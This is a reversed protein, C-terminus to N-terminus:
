GFFLCRVKEITDDYGGLSEYLKISINKICSIDYIYKKINAIISYILIQFFDNQCM